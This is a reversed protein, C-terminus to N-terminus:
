WGLGSAATQTLALMCNVQRSDGPVTQVANNKKYRMQSSGHGDLMLADSCNCYYKMIRYLEYTTPGDRFNTMDNGYFVGLIIKNDSSRYGIATRAVGSSFVPIWSFAGAHYTQMETTYTNPDACTKNMLLNVGGVAWNTYEYGTSPVWPTLRPTRTVVYAITGPPVTITKYSLYDWATSQTGNGANTAGDRVWNTNGTAAEITMNNVAHAAAMVVTKLGYFSANTGYRPWTSTLNGQTCMVTMESPSLVFYKSTINRSLGINDASSFTKEYFSAM